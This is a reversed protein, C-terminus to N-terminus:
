CDAIVIGIIKKAIKQKQWVELSEFSKENRYIENSKM